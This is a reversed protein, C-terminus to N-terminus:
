KHVQPHPAPLSSPGLPGMHQHGMKLAREVRKRLIIRDYLGPVMRDALDIVRERWGIVQATRSGKLLERIAQATRRADTGQAAIPPDLGYWDAQLRFPTDLTGPFASVFRIGRPAYELDLCELFRAAAAKSAAYYAEFPVARRAVISLVAVFTGAREKEAWHEAVLRAAATCAWFNLEFISRAREPPFLATMGYAATGAVFVVAGIPMGSEQEITSYLSRWDACNADIVYSHRVRDEAIRSRGAVVVQVNEDLLQQVLASGLGGAGGVILIQKM